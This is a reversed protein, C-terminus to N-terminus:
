IMDQVLLRQQYTRKKNEEIERKLKENKVNIQIINSEDEVMRDVTHLVHETKKLDIIKERRIETPVEVYKEVPVEVRREIIKEVEREVVREVYIPKEVM